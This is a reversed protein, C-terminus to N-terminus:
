GEERRLAVVVGVQAAGDAQLLAEVDARRVRLPGTGLRPLRGSAVWARIRRQGVRAFAAAERVSMVETPTRAQMAERVEDRVARRLEVVMATVLQALPDTTM